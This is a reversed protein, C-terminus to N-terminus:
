PNTVGSRAQKMADRYPAKTSVIFSSPEVIRRACLMPRCIAGSGGDVKDLAVATGSLASWPCRNHYPDM